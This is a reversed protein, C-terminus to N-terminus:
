HDRETHITLSKRSSVLQLPVAERFEKPAEPIAKM